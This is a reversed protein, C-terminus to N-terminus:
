AGDARGEHDVVVDIAVDCGVMYRRDQEFIPISFYLFGAIDMGPWVSQLILHAIFGIRDM